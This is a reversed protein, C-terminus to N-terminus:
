SQAHMTRYLQASLGFRREFAANFRRPDMGVQAAVAKISLARALLTWAADIRLSEVFQAPTQGTAARFKRYFSRETLNARAAPTPGDLTGDLRGQMWDILEAFPNDALVLASLLASFQNQHGPRRAYVVLRKAIDGALAAGYYGEVMALAM